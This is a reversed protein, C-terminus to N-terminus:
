LAHKDLLASLKKLDQEKDKDRKEEAKLEEKTKQKITLVSDFIEATGQKWSRKRDSILYEALSLVYRFFSMEHVKVFTFAITLATIIIIPLVWVEAFYKKALSIYIAYDLMFGIGMIGLQKLTIPGIINDDRQVDQPVKFRM